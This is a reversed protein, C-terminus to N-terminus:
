QKKNQKRQEKIYDIVKLRLYYLGFLFVVVFLNQLIEPKFIRESIFVSIAGFVFFIVIHKLYWFISKITRNM